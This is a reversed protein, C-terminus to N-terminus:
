FGLDKSKLGVFLVELVEGLLDIVGEGIGVFILLLDEISQELM